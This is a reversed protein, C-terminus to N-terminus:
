LQLGLENAGGVQQMTPEWAFDCHVASALSGKARSALWRGHLTRLGDSESVISLSNLLGFIETSLM